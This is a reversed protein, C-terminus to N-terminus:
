LLFLVPDKKKDWYPFVEEQSNGSYLSLFRQADHLQPWIAQPLLQHPLSQSFLSNAIKLLNGRNEKNNRKVFGAYDSLPSLM